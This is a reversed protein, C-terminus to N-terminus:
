LPLDEEADRAASEQEFREEAKEAAQAAEEQRIQAQAERIRSTAKAATMQDQSSPKAPASAARHAKEAIQITEKPSSGEPVRITVEGSQAYRQGDPGTVYSYQTAGSVLSGGAAVHAQEHARVEADVLQMDRITQEARIDSGSDANTPASQNTDGKAIGEQETEPEKQGGEQKPATEHDAAERAQSSIEAQDTATFGKGSESVQAESDPKLAKVDPDSPTPTSGSLAKIAQQEHTSFNIHM